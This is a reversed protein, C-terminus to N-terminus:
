VSTTAQPLTAPRLAGGVEPVVPAALVVFAATAGALPADPLLCAATGAAIAAGSGGVAVDIGGVAVGNGGDGVGVGAAGVFVPLAEGGLTVAADIATTSPVEPASM